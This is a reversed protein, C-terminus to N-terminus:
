PHPRRITDWIYVHAESLLRVWGVVREVAEGIKELTAGSRLARPTSVDRLNTKRMEFLKEAASEVFAYNELFTSAM